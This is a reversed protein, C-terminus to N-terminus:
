PVRGVGVGFNKLGTRFEAYVVNDAWLDACLAAVGAEVREESNMIKGVLGFVQFATHYDVDGGEIRDLMTCLNIFDQPEAVERLYSLPWAGGLHLHWESKKIDKMSEVLETADGCTVMLCLSLIGILSRM